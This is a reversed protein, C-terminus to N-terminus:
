SSVTDLLTFIADVCTVVVQPTGTIQVTRETSHPACQSYVKIIAGTEQLGYLVNDVNM